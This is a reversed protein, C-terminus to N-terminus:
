RTELKGTFYANATEVFAGLGTQWVERALGLARRPRGYFSLYFRRIAARLVDAELDCTPFVTTHRYEEWNHHIKHARDLDRFLESGPYPIALAAHAHDLALGDAYEITRAISGSTEGPLGLVFFGFTSIGARRCAAIARAASDLDLRKGAHRLIEPDGSELGFGLQYGGSRIVLDFFEEDCHDARVGNPTKWAVGLRHEAFARAVAKAHDLNANFADDLLAFEDVGLGNVLYDAEAMVQDLPRRRLAGGPLSPVACFRCKYPCGRSTLLPAVRRGRRVLQWPRGQYDDLTILDWAPQPLVALDAVPAPRLTALAQHRSLLGDVGELPEGALRRRTIAEATAEGEGVAVADWPGEALATEPLATAHPGGLILPAACGAARLSEAVRTVEQVNATMASFGVWLTAPATAQRVLDAMRRTTARLDYVMAEVGLQRVIAALQLLGMPPSLTLTQGATVFLVQERTPAAPRAPWVGARAPPAAARIEGGVAHRAIAGLAKVGDRWDIKKGESYDRGSYSIPVEFLRAGRRALKITLEPEMRFDDSAIPISKLLSTRVAKYGTEMDTLNLNTVLNTLLTLFRNGLDHHFLLVRRSGANAFRSGFVADAQEEVLVEVMRLVDRPHYELDADHIVCMECSARAIASRIAAGKGRNRPHRLFAWSFKGGANAEAQGTAFAALVEATGDTSGDDVVIVEIRSLHPSEGLVFLRQLSAVVCKKENYVPVLVSLSTM